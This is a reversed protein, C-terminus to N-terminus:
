VSISPPPSITASPVIIDVDTTKLQELADQGDVAEAVIKIQKDKEILRRIMKRALSSDDVLLVRIKPDM